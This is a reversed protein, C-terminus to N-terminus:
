SLDGLVIRRVGGNWIEIKNDYLRIRDSGTTNGITLRNADISGTSIKGGNIETTNTNIDNAATGVKLVGTLDLRAANITGTGIRGGDITTTGTNSVSTATLVGSLDLRAASITGTTIKGGDIVTTNAVLSNAFSSSTATATDLKGAVSSATALPTAGSAYNTFTVIGDFNIGASPTSVTAAGTAQDYAPELVVYRSVWAKLTTNSTSPSIPSYGWGDTLTAFQGTTFNYNSASPTGPATATATQYYLYGSATRPGREGDEILPITTTSTISKATGSLDQGTVTCSYTNSNSTAYDSAPVIYTFNTAGSIDVGDKKWQFTPAPTDKFNSYGTEISVSTPYINNSVDRRFTAGYNSIYFTPPSYGVTGNTIVAMVITKVIPTTLGTGTVSLTVSISTANSAPTVTVAATNTASLTGGTITWAYVPSTIGNIVATLTATTPTFTTGSKSFASYGSIDVTQASAVIPTATLQSSVTYVTEDIDSIFAYKVFYPTGAVLDTGDALKSIVVSLSLADFVKNSDSPTFGTTTSCWVKVKILDDRIDTTRITDYPTDLKLIVSNVGASLTAAM